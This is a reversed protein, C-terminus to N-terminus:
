LDERDKMGKAALAHRTLRCLIPHRDRLSPCPELEAAATAAQSECLIQAPLRLSQFLAETNDAHQNGLMLLRARCARRPHLGRAPPPPLGGPPRTAPDAFRCLEPSRLLAVPPSAYVSKLM